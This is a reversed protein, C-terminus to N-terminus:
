AVWVADLDVLLLSEFRTFQEMLGVLICSPKGLDVHAGHESHFIDNLLISHGPLRKIPEATLDFGSVLPTNNMWTFHNTADASLAHALGGGLHCEVSEM